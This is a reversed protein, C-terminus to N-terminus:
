GRFMCAVPTLPREEAKSRRRNPKYDRGKQYAIWTCTGLVPVMLCTATGLTSLGGWILLLVAAHVALVIAITKKM